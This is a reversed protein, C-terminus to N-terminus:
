SARNRLMMAIIAFVILALVPVGIAVWLIWNTKSKAVAPMANAPAPPVPQDLRRRAEDPAFVRTFESPAQLSHVEPLRSQAAPSAANAQPRLGPSTAPPPPSFLQTFESPGSQPPGQTQQTTRTAPKTAPPAPPRAPISGFIRTFESPEAATPPPVPPAVPPPADDFLRNFQETTSGPHSPTRLPASKPSLNESPLAGVASEAALSLLWTGIDKFDAVDETVAYTGGAFEGLELLPGAPDCALKAKLLALVVEGQPNFMHFLVPRQTASEIARFTKADGDAILRDLEYRKYFSM